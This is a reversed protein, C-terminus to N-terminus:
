LCRRPSDLTRTRSTRFTSLPCRRDIGSRSRRRNRNPSISRIGFIGIRVRAAAQNAMGMMLRVLKVRSNDIKSLFGDPSVGGVMFLLIFCSCCCCCCRCCCCCCWRCRPQALLVQLLSLSLKLGRLEVSTRDNEAAGSFGRGVGRVTAAHRPPCAEVQVWRVFLCFRKEIGPSLFFM